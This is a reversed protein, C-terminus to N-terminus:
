LFVVWGLLFLICSAYLCMMGRRISFSPVNSTVVGKKVFVLRPGNEPLNLVKKTNKTQQPPKSQPYLNRTDVSFWWSDRVLWRPIIKLFPTNIIKTPTPNHEWYYHGCADRIVLTNQLHYRTISGWYYNVGPHCQCQKGWKKPQWVSKLNLNPIVRTTGKSSM